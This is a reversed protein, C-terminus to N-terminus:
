QYSGQNLNKGQIVEQLLWTQKSLCSDTGDISAATSRSASRAYHSREISFDVNFGSLEGAGIHRHSHVTHWDRTAMKMGHM